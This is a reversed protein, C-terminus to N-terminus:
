FHVMTSWQRKTPGQDILGPPKSRFPVVPKTDQVHELETARLAALAFAQVEADPGVVLHGKRCVLNPFLVHVNFCLM